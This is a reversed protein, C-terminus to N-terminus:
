TRKARRARKRPIGYKRLHYHVTLASCGVLHAIERASLGKTYYQNEMWSKDALRTYRLGRPRIRVGMEQFREQVLAQSVGLRKAVESLTFGSEYMRVAEKPLSVTRRAGVPRSEGVRRVWRAVTPHTVALGTERGLRRATERSSLGTLYLTIARQKIAESHMLKGLYYRRSTCTVYLYPLITACRTRAKCNAPRLRM